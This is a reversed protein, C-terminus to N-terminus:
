RTTIGKHTIVREYVQEINRAMNLVGFEKVITDRAASGLESRIFRNNILTTLAGALQEPSQKAILLGNLNDQIVEQTGDVASAIVAKRMAMAELVGIPLGEWLSPLCYIDIANLIHPVDQRFGSFIIKNTLGLTHVLNVVETKLEGDGVFLFKVPLDAPLLEIARVLTIPDKQKTMRVIYGVLVQDDNIGFESRVPRFDADPNFKELNVSPKVVTARDMPFRKMGDNLNSQSVCITCDSNKVLYKESLV